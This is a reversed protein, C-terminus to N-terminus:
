LAVGRRGEGLHGFNTSARTQSLTSRSSYPWIDSGDLPVTRLSAMFRSTRERAIVQGLMKLHFVPLHKRTFLLLTSKTPSVDTNRECLFMEITNLGDEFQSQRATLSPGSVRIRIDDAYITLRPLPSLLRPLHAMASNFLTSRLMSGQPVGYDLVHETSM